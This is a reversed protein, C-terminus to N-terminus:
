SSSRVPAQSTEKGYWDEFHIGAIHSRGMVSELSALRKEAWGRVPLQTRFVFKIDFAGAGITPM